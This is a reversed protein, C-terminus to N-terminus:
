NYAKKIPFRNTRRDIPCFTDNLEDMQRQALISIFYVTQVDTKPVIKRSINDMNSAQEKIIVADNM